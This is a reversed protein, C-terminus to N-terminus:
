SRNSMGVRCDPVGVKIKLKSKLESEMFKSVGLYPRKLGAKLSECPHKGKTIGANQLRGSNM